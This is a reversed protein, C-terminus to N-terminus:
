GLFRMTARSRALQQQSEIEAGIAHGPGDHRPDNKRAAV